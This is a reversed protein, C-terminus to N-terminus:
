PLGRERVNDWATHWPSRAQEGHKLFPEINSSVPTDLSAKRSLTYSTSTVTTATAAATSHNRQPTQSPSRPMECKQAEPRELLRECSGLTSLERNRRSCAKSGQQPDLWHLGGCGHLWGSVGLLVRDNSTVWEPVRDEKPLLFDFSMDLHASSRPRAMRELALTSMVMRSSYDVSSISRPLSRQAVVSKSRKSTPLDM